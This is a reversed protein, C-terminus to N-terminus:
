LSFRPERSKFGSFSLGLELNRILFPSFALSVEYKREIAKDPRYITLLTRSEEGEGCLDAKCVVATGKWNVVKSAM